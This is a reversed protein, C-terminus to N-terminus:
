KTLYLIGITKPGCHSSIVSGAITIDIEKIDSIKNLENKLYEADEDCGTHTIFVRSLDINQQNNKFDDLLSNLAKKRSGHSREKVGLTGDSRMDIVPRIKLLSGVLNQMASCRGGMYLYELTDIVFATHVKPVLDRIQREIEDLSLGQDRLEAARLALLGIGSSLNLSDVVRVQHTSHLQAAVIANSVTASIKSSIGIYIADDIGSFFQYFDTQSPASTKPLQNYEKVMEFLQAGKLGTGDLFTQNNIFVSLPITEIQYRTILEQSLDCCSDSLIRIM